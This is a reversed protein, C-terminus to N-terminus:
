DSTNTNGYRVQIYEIQERCHFVMACYLQWLKTRRNFVCPILISSYKINLKKLSERNYNMNYLLINGARPHIKGLMDALDCGTSYVNFLGSIMEHTLADKCPGNYMYMYMDM